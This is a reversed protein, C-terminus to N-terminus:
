ASDNLGIEMIEGEGVLGTHTSTACFSVESSKSDYHSGRGTVVLRQVGRRNRTPRGPQTVDLEKQGQEKHQVQGEQGDRVVPIIKKLFRRNRLTLRGTGHVKVTYQEFPKVEVVEGTKEWRTSREGVQNQIRVTDGVELGPLKKTGELLKEESKVARRALATERDQQLLRWEQRPDYRSVPGPLHDRLQRGFLVEAPSRGTDRDPTNRYTLIAKLFRDTDLSGCATTNERCLRKM